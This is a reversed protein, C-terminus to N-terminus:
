LGEARLVMNEPRLVPPAPPTPRRLGVPNPRTDVSCPLPPLIRPVREPETPRKREDDDNPPQARLSDSACRFAGAEAPAKQNERRRGVGGELSASTQPRSSVGFLFVRGTLPFCFFGGGHPPPSRHRTGMLVGGFGTRRQGKLDVLRTGMPSKDADEFSSLPHTADFTPHGGTIFAGTGSPAGM